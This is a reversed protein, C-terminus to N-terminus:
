RSVPKNGGAPGKGIERLLKQADPDAEHDSMGDLGDVVLRLERGTLALLYEAALASKMSAPDNIPTKFLKGM